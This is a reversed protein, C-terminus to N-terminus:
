SAASSLFAEMHFNYALKCVFGSQFIHAAVVLIILIGKSVDLYDLRSKM